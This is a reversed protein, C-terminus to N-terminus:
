QQDDDDDDPRFCTTASTRRQSERGLRGARHREIERHGDIRQRGAASVVVHLQREPEENGGDFLQRIRAIPRTFVVSVHFVIVLLSRVFLAAENIFANFRHNGTKSEVSQGTELSGNAFEGVSGDGVVVHQAANQIKEECRRSRRLATVVAGYRCQISFRAVSALYHVFGVVVIVDLCVMVAFLTAARSM